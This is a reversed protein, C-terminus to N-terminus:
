LERIEKRAAAVIRGSALLQETVRRECLRGGSLVLALGGVVAPEGACYATTVGGHSVLYWQGPSPPADPRSLGYLEAYSVGYLRALKALQARTLSRRGAECRELAVAPLGIARAAAALSLGAAERFHELENM